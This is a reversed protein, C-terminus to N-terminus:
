RNYLAARIRLFKVTPDVTADTRHVQADAGHHVHRFQIPSRSRHLDGAGGAGFAIRGLQVETAEPEARAISLPAQAEALPAEDRRRPL